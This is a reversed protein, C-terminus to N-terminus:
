RVFWTKGEWYSHCQNIILSWLSYNQLNSKPTTWLSMCWAPHSASLHGWSESPKILAAVTRIRHSRSSLLAWIETRLGEQTGTYCVIEVQRQYPCYELFAHELSYVLEIWRGKRKFVCVGCIRSTPLKELGFFFFFFSDLCPFIM